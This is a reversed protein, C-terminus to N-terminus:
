SLNGLRLGIKILGDVKLGKNQLNLLYYMICLLRLSKIQNRLLDITWLLDSLDTKLLNIKCSYRLETSKVFNDWKKVYRSGPMVTRYNIKHKWVKSTWCYHTFRHKETHMHTQNAATATTPDSQWEESQPVLPLSSSTSSAYDSIIEDGLEKTLKNYLKEAEELLM